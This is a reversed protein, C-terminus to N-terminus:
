SPFERSFGKRDGLREFDSKSYYTSLNHEQELPVINKFNNIVDEFLAYGFHLSRSYVGIVEEKVPDIKFKVQGYIPGDDIGTSISHITVGHEKENNKLAWNIPNVGRYRPLPGNHLNLITSFNELDASKLIKDYYCSFGLDVRTKLQALDGLSMIDVDHNIAWHIFSDAWEPEPLVPVVGILNFEQSYKFYHAIKIALSGKGLVLVTKRVNLNELEQIM